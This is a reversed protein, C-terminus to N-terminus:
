HDSSRQACTGVYQYETSHSLGIDALSLINIPLDAMMERLEILKGANTSALLLNQM